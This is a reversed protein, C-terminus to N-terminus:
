FIQGLEKQKFLADGLVLLGPVALGGRHLQHYRRVATRLLILIAAFVGNEGGGLGIDNCQIGAPSATPKPM